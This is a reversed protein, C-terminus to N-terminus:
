RKARQQRGRGGRGGAPRRRRVTSLGRRHTGLKCTTFTRQTCKRTCACTGHGTAHGWIHLVFKPNSPPNFFFCFFFFLQHGRHSFVSSPVAPWHSRPLPALGKGRGRNGGRRMEEERGGKLEDSPWQPSHAAIRIRIGRDTQPRRASLPSGDGPMQFALGKKEGPCRVSLSPRGSPRSRSISFLSLSSSLIFSCLPLPPTVAAPVRFWSVISPLFCQLHIKSITWTTSTHFFSVSKAFKHLHAPSLIM